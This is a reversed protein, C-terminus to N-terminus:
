GHAKEEEMGRLSVRIGPKKGYVKRAELSVNNKDDTYAVGNLADLVAKCVNDLDPKVTPLERNLRQPPPYVAVIDLAFPGALPPKDGHRAQYALRLAREFAKDESAKYAVGTARSFRPRGQGRPMGPWTFTREDTM